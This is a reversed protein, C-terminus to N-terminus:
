IRTPGDFQLLAPCTCTWNELRTSALIHNAGYFPFLFSRNQLQHLRPSSWPFATLYFCSTWDQSRYSNTLRHLASAFAHMVKNNNNGIEMYM